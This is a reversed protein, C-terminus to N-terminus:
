NKEKYTLMMSTATHSVVFNGYLLMSAGHNKATSQPVFKLRVLPMAFSINDASATGNPPTSLVNNIYRRVDPNTKGAYLKGSYYCSLAAATANYEQKASFGSNIARSYCEQFINHAAVANKCVDFGAQINVDWGLRSFHIQNVQGPGISFNRDLSVLYKATAVAEDLNKPQRVLRGGVVGIAFPNFGSEVQYIRQMVPSQLASQCDPPFDIM